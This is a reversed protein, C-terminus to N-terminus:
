AGQNKCNKRGLLKARMQARPKMLSPFDKHRRKLSRPEIRNPRDPLPDSALAELLGNILQTRQVRSRARAIVLSYHRLTDLSGKFSIRQLDVDHIAAAEAMLCRIFNYGILHMLLERYLLAPSKCTLVDLKLTTKIDRLFLEVHWRRLYLQALEHAPYAAPDLLTTVLLIEHTRFGPTCVPFRIMRLTIQQPLSRWLKKTATRPKATPKKWIVLRDYRGLRKGKRFDHPRCNLRLVTDVFRKQLAALTVFDCFGRDALFIM